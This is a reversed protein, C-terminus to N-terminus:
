DTGIYDFSYQFGEWIFSNPPTRKRINNILKKAQMKIYLNMFKYRKREARIWLSAIIV